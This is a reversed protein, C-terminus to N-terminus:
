NGDKVLLFKDKSKSVIIDPNKKNKIIQPLVNSCFYISGVTLSSVAMIDCTTRFGVCENLTGGLVPAIISGIANFTNFLGSAKDNLINNDKL